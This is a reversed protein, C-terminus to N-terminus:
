TQGEPPLLATQRDEPGDRAPPRLRRPRHAVIGYRRACDPCLHVRHRLCTWVGYHTVRDIGCYDCTM